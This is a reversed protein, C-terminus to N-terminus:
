ARHRRWHDRALRALQEHNAHWEEVDEVHRYAAAFAENVNVTGARVQGGVKRGRSGSKSWVSANLGYRSDNALEVAVDELADFILVAIVDDLLADLANIRELKLEDDVSEFSLYNQVLVRSPM